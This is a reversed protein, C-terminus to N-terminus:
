GSGDPATFSIPDGNPLKRQTQQGPIDLYQKDGRIETTTQPATRQADLLHIGFDGESWSKLTVTGGGEGNIVVVLDAGAKVYNFQGDASQWTTENLKVSADIAVGAGVGSVFGISTTTKVIRLVGKGDTDLVTDAGDGDVTSGFLGNRRTRNYTYLDIGRGGELYDQGGRGEIIDASDGGFLKDGLVNDSGNLYRGTDDSFQIMETPLTNPTHDAAQAFLVHEKGNEYYRYEFERDDIVPIVAIDPNDQTNHLLAAHILKARETLWAETLGGTKQASDYLNLEGNENHIAYLSNDGVIAFPNLAKLGYRYALAESGSALLALSEANATTLVDVHMGPNNTAVGEILARLPTIRQYLAERNGILGDALPPFDLGFLNVLADVVRELSAEVQPSSAEFLPKLTALAAAPTSNRIQSSLKIFLDYLAASDTMQVSSHGAVPPLILSGDEIFIGDFGGPQQLVSNNMAAFEPGAIGYVNQIAAPNFAAAGGLQAFVSDVTANGIKFGLANVVLATAPIDPFLRTFAMALHGGLSHGTVNFAAPTMTLAGTGQRLSVDTLQGSPIWNITYTIIGNGPDLQAIARAATYESGLATNARQWFNYLDLLQAVAVGDVAIVNIDNLIDTPSTASTGRVSLTYAGTDTDRFITASFGTSTDPIHDVVQWKNVFATAQALSFKSEGQQLATVSAVQPNSFDAYSAEALQIQSSLDIILSM